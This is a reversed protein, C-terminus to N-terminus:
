TLWSRPPHSPHSPSFTALSAQTIYKSYEKLKVRLEKFLEWQENDDGSLFHWNTAYRKPDESTKADRAQLKHLRTEMRVIEAQRYLLDLANTAGFRRFIAIQPMRGMYDALLPHGPTPPIPPQRTRCTSEPQQSTSTTHAAEDSNAAPTSSSAATPYNTSNEEPSTPEPARHTPLISM